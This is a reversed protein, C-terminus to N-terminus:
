LQPPPLPGMGRGVKKARADRRNNGGGRGRGQEKRRRAAQTAADDAPGSTSGGRGRGRAFDRHGRIGAMGQRRTNNSREPGSENESNETSTSAQWKTSQLLRQQGGFARASGYKDQLKDQTKKDKNLMIAWGEIQEDSM